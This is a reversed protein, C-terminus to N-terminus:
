GKLMQQLVSKVNFFEKLKKKDPFSRIEEKIKFSLRAPYLLRLQLDKSKMGKFIECWERRAQFTETSFDPSLSIPAGKYTVVQKERAAKLTREKDKPRAMKIIIHRPIPRKPNLKNPIKQAEQIQTDKEKVMNPFNEIMIEEFLNEIGQESGEREPIGM